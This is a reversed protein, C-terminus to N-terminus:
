QPQGPRSRRGTAIAAGIEGKSLLTGDASEIEHVVTGKAAAHEAWALAQDLDSFEKSPWGGREIPSIRAREAGYYVRYTM